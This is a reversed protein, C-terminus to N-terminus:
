LVGFKKLAKVKITPKIKKNTTPKIKYKFINVGKLPKINKPKPDRKIRADKIKLGCKSIGTIGM